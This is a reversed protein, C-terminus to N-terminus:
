LARYTSVPFQMCARRRARLKGDSGVARRGDQAAGAAVGRWCRSWLHGDRTASPVDRFKVSEPGKVIAVPAAILRAHFLLFQISGVGPADLNRGGNDRAL